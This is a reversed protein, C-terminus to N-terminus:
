RSMHIALLAGLFSTGIMLTLSILGGIISGQPEDEDDDEEDEEHEGEDLGHEDDMVGTLLFGELESMRDQFSDDEPDIKMSGVYKGDCMINLEYGISNM